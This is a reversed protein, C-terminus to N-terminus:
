SYRYHDSTRTQTLLLVTDECLVISGTPRLNSLSNENPPQGENTRFYRISLLCSCRCCMLAIFTICGISSRRWHIRTILSSNEIAVILMQGYNALCLSIHGRYSATRALTFIVYDTSLGVQMYSRRKRYCNLPFERRDDVM